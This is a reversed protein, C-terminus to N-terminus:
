GYSLIMLQVEDFNFVEKEFYKILLCLFPSILSQFFIGTVRTDSLPLTLLVFSRWMEIKRRLHAGYYHSGAKDKM